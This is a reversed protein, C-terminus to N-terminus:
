RQTRLNRHGAEESPLLGLAGIAHPTIAGCNTCAVLVVPVSPGGLVLDGSLETHIPFYSYGEIVSFSLSGCRHCPRNVGKQQLLDSVKSQDLPTFGRSAMASTVPDKGIAYAIKIKRILELLPNNNQEKKTDAM